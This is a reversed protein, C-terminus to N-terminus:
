DIMDLVLRHIEIGHWFLGIYRTMRVMPGVVSSPPSDPWPEPLTVPILEKAFPPGGFIYYFRGREKSPSIKVVSGFYPYFSVVSFVVIQPSALELGGHVRIGGRGPSSWQIALKQSPSPGMDLTSTKPVNRAGPPGWGQHSHVLFGGPGGKPGGRGRSVGGRVPVGRYSGGRIGGRGGGKQAM